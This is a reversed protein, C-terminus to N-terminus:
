SGIRLSLTTGKGPASRVSLEAGELRARSALIQLGQHRRFSDVPGEGPVFGKGDDAVEVTIAGNSFGLTVWTHSAQAHKRVNSLSEQVFSFTLAVDDPSADRETGSVAFSIDLGWQSAFDATFRELGKSLDTWDPANPTLELIAGRLTDLADLVATRMSRLIRRAAEPDDLTQDFVEMQLAVNTLVQTIGEHIMGAIRAREILMANTRAAALDETEDGLDIPRESAVLAVLLGSLVESYSGEALDRAADPDPDEFLVAAGLRDDVVALLRGLGSAALRQGPGGLSSVDDVYVRGDRPLVAIASGLIEDRYSPVSSHPTWRGASERLTVWRRAGLRRALPDLVASPSGVRVADDQSIKM